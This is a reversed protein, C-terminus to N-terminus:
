LESATISSNDEDGCDDYDFTRGIIYDRKYLKRGTKADYGLSTVHPKLHLKHCKLIQRLMNVAPFKQSTLNNSRLSTLKDSRYHLSKWKEKFHDNYYSVTDEKLLKTREVVQDLLDDLDEFEVDVYRLMDKLLEMDEKSTDKIIEIVRENSKSTTDISDM